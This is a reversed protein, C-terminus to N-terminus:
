KRLSNIFESPTINFQKKFCKTFYNPDSMGVSYSTESVNMGNLLHKRAEKMKISRVFETISANALSKLKTHLLSRSVGMAAVIETVGFDEDQINEHIFKVLTAMFKEDRPNTAIQNVNVEDETKFREINKNKTKQLNSVLLELNQANFPKTIYADAGHMYGETVDSEATKATLMIVPIHSTSLNNKIKKLFEIGGMVPMMVDSIILDPIEKVVCKLGEQGNYAKVVRYKTSFIDELNNILEENDEVILLTPCLNSTDKNQKNYEPLLSITEQMRDNHKQIDESSIGESLRQELDYANESVNIKVTFKTGEGERSEVQITGKHISVLSKTLSLGIGFGKYHDTKEVQYYNDFINKLQNEPIGRGSDEVNIELYNYDGEEILNASLLVMGNPRTYKFANSLLNYIIRELKSPSFWVDVDQNQPLQISFDINRDRAFLEFIKSIEAIFVFVNGKRVTIRMQKMEIKSLTLLEEVLYHMRNANRLIVEIKSKDDETKANQLLRQLPTLILTLPTKLDHSIYTFFNIKQRNLEELDLRLSKEAKLRIILNIRSKSFNYIYYVVILFLILYVMYAWISLWFPPKINIEFTAVGDEDWNIGDNGAKVYLIYKGHSLNSFNIQHQKGINQWKNDAGELKTSYYTNTGYRYNLGSFEVTFSKAQEYNLKVTAINQNPDSFELPFSKGNVIVDTIHVKFENESKTLEAPLFSILGNITGFYLRGSRSKCASSYNFQNVPIGDSSTFNTINDSDINLKSLGQETSIWFINKKEEIVAKIANSPLGEKVTYNKILKGKTDFVFLGLNSGVLMNQQSDETIYTIFNVNHKYFRVKQVTKSTKNIVFLGDRRTGIWVNGNKATKMCFIFRSSLDSIWELTKFKNATKDFYFLGSLTGAWIDGDKDENICFVFSSQNKKDDNMYHSLKGNKKNYCSLGHGFTGIWLNNKQDSLVSHINLTKLKFPPVNLRFSKIKNSKDDIYNLGGDETAVWIDNNNGEIIQRPAKGSLHNISNGPQFVTFRQTGKVFYNIGGFYTAIWVNGLKDEFIKYIANDDLNSLDSSRQQFHYNLNLNKDYVLIGNESGIWTYGEKDCMLTRFVNNDFGAVQKVSNLSPDIVFMKNFDLAIWLENKRGSKITSIRNNRILDYEPLPPIKFVEEKTQINYTKLGVNTAVWLTNFDDQALGNIEYNRDHKNAFFPSFSDKDPSYLYLGGSTILLLGGDKLQFFDKVVILKANAQLRYQKFKRESYIYKCFGEDTSVWLCQNYPDHLLNTIFSNSVSTSDDADHLFNILNYGDYRCLGNRTAFWMYGNNDQAISSVSNHPLGDFINLHKFRVNRFDTSFLFAPIALLCLLILKKLRNFIVYM